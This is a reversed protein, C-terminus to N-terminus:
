EEDDSIAKVAKKPAAKKPASKKPAEQEEDESQAPTTVKKTPTKKDTTRKPEVKPEVKEEVKEEVKPEVKEEEKVDEEKPESSEIEVVDNETKEGLKRRRAIDRQKWAAEKKQYEEKDRQALNNYKVKKNEDLAKWMEGAESSIDKMAKKRAEKLEDNSLNQADEESITHKKTLMPRVDALFHFYPTLGRKPKPEPFEGNKIALEMQKAYSTKFEDRAKEYQKQFVSKEKDSLTSWKKTRLEGTYKINNKECDAKLKQTFLNMASVPKKLDKSVFKADNSVKRKNAKRVVKELTERDTGTIYTIFDDVPIGDFEKALASMVDLFFKGLDPKQKIRGTFVGTNNQVEQEEKEEKEKEEKVDEVVTEAEPKTTKSGPM